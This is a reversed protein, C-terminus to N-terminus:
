EYCNHIIKLNGYSDKSLKIQISDAKSDGTIDASFSVNKNSYNAPAIVLFITLFSNVVKNTLSVIIV